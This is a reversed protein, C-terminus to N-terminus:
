RVPELHALLLPHASDGRTTPHGDLGAGGGAPGADPAGSGELEVVGRAAAPAHRATM